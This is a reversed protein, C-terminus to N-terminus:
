DEESSSEEDSKQDGDWDLSFDYHNAAEVIEQESGEAAAAAAANVTPEEDLSSDWRLILNGEMDSCLSELSEDSEDLNADDNDLEPPVEFDMLDPVPPLSIRPPRQKKRALGQTINAQKRAYASSMRGITSVFQRLNPHPKFAANMERNFRELLNNTRADIFLSVSNYLLLEKLAPHAWGLIRNPPTNPEPHAAVLHFRFFPIESDKVKSCPPVEVIGHIAGGYYRRRVRRIRSKVQEETLAEILEERNPGYFEACVREWIDEEPMGPDETALRDTMKKMAVTENRLSGNAIVDNRCNHDGVVSWEGHPTIKLVGGCRSTRYTSCRYVINKTSVWSKTYRFGKYIKVTKSGCTKKVRLAPQRSNRTAILPSTTLPPPTVSQMLFYLLISVSPATATGTRVKHNSAGRQKPRAPTHQRAM